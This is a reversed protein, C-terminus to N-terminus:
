RVFNESSGLELLFDGLKTSLIYFWLGQSMLMSVAEAPEIVWGILAKYELPVILLINRGISEWMEGLRYPFLYEAVAVQIQGCLLLQESLITAVFDATDNQLGKSLCNVLKLM